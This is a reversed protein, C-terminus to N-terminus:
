FKEQMPPHTGNICLVPISNKATHQRGFHLIISDQVRENSTLGKKQVFRKAELLSVSSTSRQAVLAMVM